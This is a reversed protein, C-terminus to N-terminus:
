TTDGITVLQVETNFEIGVMVFPSGVDLFYDMGTDSSPIVANPVLYTAGTPYTTSELWPADFLKTLWATIYTYLNDEPEGDYGQEAHAVVLRSTVIRTEILEDESNTEYDAPGLWNLWYPPRPAKALRRAYAVSGSVAEQQLAAFRALLDSHNSM